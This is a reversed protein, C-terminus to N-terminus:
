QRLKYLRNCRLPLIKALISDGDEGALCVMADSHVAVCIPLEAVKWTSRLVMDVWAYIGDIKKQITLSLRHTEQENNIYVFRTAINEIAYTQMFSVLSDDQEGRYCFVVCTCGIRKLMDALRKEEGPKLTGVVGCLKGFEVLDMEDVYIM